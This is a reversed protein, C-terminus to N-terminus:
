YYAEVGRERLLMRGRRLVLDFLSLCALVDWFFDENDGDVAASEEASEEWGVLEGVEDKGLGNFAYDACGFVRLGAGFNLM